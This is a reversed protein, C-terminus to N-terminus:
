GRVLRLGRRDRQPTARAVEEVPVPGDPGLAWSLWLAGSVRGGRIVPVACTDVWLPLNGGFAASVTRRQEVEGRLLAGFPPMADPEVLAGAEDRVEISRGVAALDRPFPVRLRRYLVAVGRNTWAWSGDARVESAICYGWAESALRFDAGRAAHQILSELSM